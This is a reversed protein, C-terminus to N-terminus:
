PLVVPTVTGPMHYFGLGIMAYVAILLVGELWTSRNDALLDRAIVVSLVVGVLEFPSFILNM